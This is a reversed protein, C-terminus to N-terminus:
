SGPYLQKCHRRIHVMLQKAMEIVDTDGELDGFDALSTFGENAIITACTAAVIIGCQKLVEEMEQMVAEVTAAAAMIIGLITIIPFFGHTLIGLLETLYVLAEV